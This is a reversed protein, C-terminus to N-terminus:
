VDSIIGISKKLVEIAESKKELQKKLRRNENELERLKKNEAKEKHINTSYGYAKLWNRITDVHVGLESAVEKPSHGGDVVLKVAGLKFSEQYKPPATRKKNSGM